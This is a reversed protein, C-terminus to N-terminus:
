VEVEYGQNEIVEKFDNFNVKNEDFSVKVEEKSLNVESSNVGDLYNLASEISQKCHGCSMGQVKIVDKNM